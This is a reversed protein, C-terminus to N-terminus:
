SCQSTGARGAALLETVSAGQRMLASGVLALRYGLGALKEIDGAHEIGSEAVAPLESPLFGALAEFRDFDVILTKLNRCNVGALLPPSHASPALGAIRELDGSDFAELLVFLGLERAAALMEDIEADSLMAVILLVGSAGAARAEIIHYPSTLFDKRMVPCGLPRLAAAAEHLHELRGNFETPETLVSVAAAGENAYRSVQAVRDFDDAALGGAAPSRLKLEAIVDFTALALPLPQAARLALELMAAESQQAQADRVRIRSQMVMRQLFDSM